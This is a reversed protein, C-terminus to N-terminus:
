QSLKRCNWCLLSCHELEQLIREKSWNMSVAKNKLNGANGQEDQYRFELLRSDALGCRQCVKGQKQEELFARLSQRREANRSQRRAYIERKHEQFYQKNYAQKEDKEV